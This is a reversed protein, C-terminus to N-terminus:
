GAREDGELHSGRRLRRAARSTGRVVAVTKIVPKAVAGYTIKSLTDARATVREASDILGDVREMEHEVASTREELRRVTSDVDTRLTRLVERLEDTARRVQMVVIVSIATAGLAAVGIIIAALDSAAM